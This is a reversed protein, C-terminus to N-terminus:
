WISSSKLVVMLASTGVLFILSLLENGLYNKLEDKMKKLAIGMQNEVTKLSLGLAEAIQKYKMEEFRSLVFIAKCKPPLSDLAHQIKERLERTMVQSDTREHSEIKMEGMRVKKKNSALYTISSNIVARFLYAKQNLITALEERRPWIKLFVEQVIDHAAEADGIVNQAANRLAKYHAKYMKEFSDSQEPM